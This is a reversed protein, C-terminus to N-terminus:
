KYRTYVYRARPTHATRLPWHANTAVTPPFISFSPAVRLLLVGIGGFRRFSSSTTQATGVRPLSQVYNARGGVGGRRPRHCESPIHGIKYGDATVAALAAREDAYALKSAQSIVKLENDWTLNVEHQHLRGWGSLLKGQYRFTDTFFHQQMLM